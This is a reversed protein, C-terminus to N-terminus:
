AQGRFGTKSRFWNFGDDLYPLYWVLLEKMNYVSLGGYTAYSFDNVKYSNGVKYKPNGTDYLLKHSYSSGIQFMSGYSGGNDSCNLGNEIAGFIGLTRMNLLDRNIKSKQLLHIAGAFQNYLYGYTMPEGNPTLAKVKKDQWPQAKSTSNWNKNVTDGYRKQYLMFQIALFTEGLKRSDNAYLGPLQNKTVGNPAVWNGPWNQTFHSLPVGFKSMEGKSVKWLQRAGENGRQHNMYLWFPVDTYVTGSKYSSSSSNLYKLYDEEQGPPISFVPPDNVKIVSYDYASEESGSYNNERYQELDFYDEDHNNLIQEEDQIYEYIEGPGVLSFMGLSEEENKITHDLLGINRVDFEFEGEIIIKKSEIYKIKVTENRTKTENKPIGVYYLHWPKDNYPRVFGYNEINNDLWQKPTLTNQFSTSSTELFQNLWWDIDVSLIDFAKGTINQSLGPLSLISLIDSTELIEDEMLTFTANGNKLNFHNPDNKFNEYEKIIQDNTLFGYVIDHVGYWKFNYVDRKLDSILDELKDEAEPDASTAEVYTLSNTMGTFSVINQTEANSIKFVEKDTIEPYLKKVEEIKLQIDGPINLKPKSLLGWTGEGVIGDQKLGNEKQFKIVAEKTLKGFYGVKEKDVPIGLVNQLEKVDDGKSGMKLPLKM